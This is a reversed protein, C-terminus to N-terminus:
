CDVMRGRSEYTGTGPPGQVLTLTSEASELFRKAAKQQTANLKSLAHTIVRPTQSECPDKPTQSQGSAISATPSASATASPSLSLPTNNTNISVKDDEKPEEAEDGSDSDDSDDFRIHTSQKHSLISPLFAVKTARTCAEFQRQVPFNFYSILSM